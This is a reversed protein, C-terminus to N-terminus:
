LLLFMYFRMVMLFLLKLRAAEESFWYGTFEGYPSVLRNNYRICLYPNYVYPARVTCKIFGFFGDINFNSPSYYIIPAGVPLPQTMAWAYM